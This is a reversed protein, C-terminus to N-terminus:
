KELDKILSEILELAKKVRKRSRTAKAKEFHLAVGIGQVGILCKEVAKKDKATFHQGAEKLFFNCADAVAHCSIRSVEPM